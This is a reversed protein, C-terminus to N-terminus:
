LGECPDRIIQHAISVLLHPPMVTQLHLSQTLRFATRHTLLSIEITKSNPCTAMGGICRIETTIRSDGSFPIM